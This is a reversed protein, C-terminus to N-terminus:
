HYWIIWYYPDRIWNRIKLSTKEKSCGEIINKKLFFSHNKMNAYVNQLLFYIYIDLFLNWVQM